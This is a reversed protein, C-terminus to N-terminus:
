PLAPERPSGREPIWDRLVGHLWELEPEGLDAGITIRDAGQDVTLRLTGEIRELKLNRVSARPIEASTPKRWLTKWMKLQDSGSFVSFPLEVPGRGERYALTEPSLQLVSETGPRLLRWLTAIAMIGGVTWAGLWALMFTSSGAVNGSDSGSFLHRAVTV